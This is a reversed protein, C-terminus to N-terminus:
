APHAVRLDLWAVLDAVNRALLLDVIRVTRHRERRRVLPHRGAGQDRRYQGLRRGQDRRDPVARGGIGAPGRLGPLYDSAKGNHLYPIAFHLGHNKVFSRVAPHNDLHYGASQEWTITDASSSTSIPGRPRRCPSPRSCASTPRACRAIRTSTRCRPRRARRRTPASRASCASSSGATIPASSLTWGTPRRRAGAGERGPVAARDAAGAPVARPGASRLDAARCLPADPRGGDPLRTGARPAACSVGEADGDAAGGPATVSPRQMNLAAAMASTPPLDQPDLVISPVSPWDAVAIRNRVGMQIAACTPSPSPTSRRAPCPMSAGSRRSRSRAPTRRRSRSWRSPCASSRPSKKTSSATTASRTSGGGCRAASWRSAYFSARSRGCASRCPHGHQLGLGRDADRGLRHLAHRPRASAAAARAEEALEEFGEPYVPRGQKDQPWAVSGVTDLTLRMWRNEDTKANGTDTEAVVGTDVRITVIRGDTNALDPVNLPAVGAPRKGEGIWEFLAKAIRKNKAVLIFVPPRPDDEGAWRRLEQAWM